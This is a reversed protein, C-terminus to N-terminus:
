NLTFVKSIINMVVIMSISVVNGDSMRWERVKWQRHFKTRGMIQSSEIVRFENGISVNQRRRWGSEGRKNVFGGWIDRVRELMTGWCSAIIDDCSHCKQAIGISDARSHTQQTSIRILISWSERAREGCHRAIAIDHQRRNWSDGADGGNRKRRRRKRGDASTRRSQRIM